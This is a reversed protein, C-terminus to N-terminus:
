CYFHRFGGEQDPHLGLPTCWCEFIDSWIVGCGIINGEVDGEEDFTITMPQGCKICPIRFWLESKNAKM